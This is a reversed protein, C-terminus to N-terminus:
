PIPPRGGLPARACGTIMRVVIEDFRAYNKSAGFRAAKKLIENEQELERIRNHTTDGAVANLVQATDRYLAQRSQGRQRALDSVAGWPGFLTACASALQRCVALFRM